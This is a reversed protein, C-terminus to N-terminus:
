GESRVRAVLAKTVFAGIVLATLTALTKKLM